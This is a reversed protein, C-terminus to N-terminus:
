HKQLVVLTLGNYTAIQIGQLIKAQLLSGMLNMCKLNMLTYRYKVLILLVGEM